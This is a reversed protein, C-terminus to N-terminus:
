WVIGASLGLSFGAEMYYVAFPIDIKVVSLNLGIGATVKPNITTPKKEKTGGEITIFGPQSLESATYDTTVPGAAQLKIESSGFNFDVGTGLSINLVSFFVFATSIDVPVTITESITQIKFSPDITLTYTTDVTEQITSKLIKIANETKSYYFGAGIALGRWKFLGPIKRPWFIIQNVGAGLLLEKYSFGEMESNINEFNIAVQGYKLNIYLGPFIFGANVGANVTAIGAGVGLYADGDREIKYRMDTVYDKNYAFAPVQLSVMAGTMLAFLSYDQYGELTAVNTSYTNANAFGKALKEQNDYKDLEAKVNALMTNWVGSIAINLTGAGVYQPYQGGVTVAGANTALLCAITLGALAGLLSKM